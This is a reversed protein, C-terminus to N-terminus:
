RCSRENISSGYFIANMLMKNPGFWFARFALNDTFGIVRGRGLASVSVVSANKILNYNQKSIYGSILPSATFTIPNAYPNKSPELCLNNSKFVPMTTNYYGYLLPHTIDANAEFIAGSTEQAGEYEDIFEYPRAKVQKQDENKKMEFKGFANAHLWHLANEFGIVVGGNQIWLRLRDKANENIANYTGPPFIITNYKNLNATNFVSTPIKTLPINYRTDLLHWIEGADNAVVGVDVLMAIQPKQLTIFSNSGLSTGKYDLGTAFSYIDIGDNKTIDDLIFDIFDLSKEQGELPIIVSGREFVKGSPHNFAANAVKIRINHQLLKNIARPTFYEYPEFAYAYTSKGNVFRGEYKEFSTVKTGLSPTTKLEEVELGSALSLTWSSIDYFLSDEFKTRKEFMGKILRYQAQNMPVIFSSTADFEKGNIQQSSAPKYIAIDQRSVIEALLHARTKDKSSGFIIAKVPDKTADSVADKFFQRQYSLLDVRLANVATLSSLGTVFQNRITFSFNLIGNVSEQAHGRSSAQEFLIGIAGQADPFTSGKGYYFDDYGEQTFYLSGIADLAKAHFEGIKMTLEHNKQPTLPHKRSPVGPQFFFTSNTGMEHHDTLLNPKWQQFKKIRAQSEPQQAVLWDRNLDFWYHNTRGGPWSENHEMDYSDASVVKGKRSNVWTSFRQLGDPNFSPDFLIITNKLMSEIEPGQAAALHYALLLGANSGSPENGHISCGLYFVAPMNATNLASSKAPDALQVHEQRLQEINQHNAPATITLLLLPRAEHTYGTVELAIRDSAQDLAYMYSVLRDHTVHFEGVEHGIISKPTPIKPDYSVKDPLFYSLDSQAFAQSKLLMLFAFYCLLIKKM